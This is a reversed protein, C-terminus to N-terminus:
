RSNLAAQERTMLGEFFRYYSGSTSHFFKRPNGIQLNPVRVSSRRPEM